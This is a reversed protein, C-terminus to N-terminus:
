KLLKILQDRQRSWSDSDGQAAVMFQLMIEADHRAHAIAM